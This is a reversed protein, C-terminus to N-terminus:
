MEVRRFGGEPKGSQWGWFVQADIGLLINAVQRADHNLSWIKQEVDHDAALRIKSTHNGCDHGSELPHRLFPSM